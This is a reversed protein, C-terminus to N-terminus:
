ESKGRVDGAASPDDAAGADAVEGSHVGSTIEKPQTAKVEYGVSEIKILDKKSGEAFKSQVMASEVLAAALAKGALPDLTFPEVQIKQIKSTEPSRDALDRAAALQINESGASRMLNATKLVAERGLRKLLEAMDITKEEIRSDVDNVLAQGTITGHAVYVSAPSAGVARAAEAISKTAGSAYLRLAAKTRPRLDPTRKRNASEPNPRPV